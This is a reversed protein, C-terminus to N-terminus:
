TPNLTILFGPFGRPYIKLNEKISLYNACPTEPHEQNGNTILNKSFRINFAIFTTTFYVDELVVITRPKIINNNSRNRHFDFNRCFM